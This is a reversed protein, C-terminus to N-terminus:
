LIYTIVVVLHHHSTDFSRQVYWVLCIRNLIILCSVLCHVVYFKIAVFMQFRVDPIEELQVAQM